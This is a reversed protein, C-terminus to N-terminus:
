NTFEQVFMEGYIGGDVVGIGVRGFDASLINARHGPSNILGTHALFVNPALALNEGAALFQIGANELRDFPSHGEPNYHSFFGRALMDRGYSRSVERLRLDISLKGVGAKEREQNVLFFMTAEASEDVKVQQATFGLDVKEESSPNPNVTLFTLTENVAGGFIKNLQREIGQTKAVLPGGIKSALIDKKIAGQVPLAILLTLIFATFLVAEGLAPIFGAIRDLSMVFNQLKNKTLKDLIASYLKRYLLNILYSIILETALGCILFGAANAIGRSLAFNAILIDGVRSYLKLGVAFSLLFGGLNITSLVFGRGIGGGLYFLLILIIVLDVWNGHLAPLNM